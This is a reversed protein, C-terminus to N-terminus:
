AVEKVGVINDNTTRPSNRKEALRLSEEATETKTFPDAYYNKLWRDYRIAMFM